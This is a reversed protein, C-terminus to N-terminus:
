VSNLDWTVSHMHQLLEAELMPNHYM